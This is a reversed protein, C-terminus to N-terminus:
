HVSNYGDEYGKTYEKEWSSGIHRNSTLDYGHEKDFNAAYIGYEKGHAYDHLTNEKKTVKTNLTKTEEKTQKQNSCAVIFISSALTLGILVKKM